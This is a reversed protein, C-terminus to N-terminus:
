TRRRGRLVASTRYSARRRVKRHWRLKRDRSQRFEEPGLASVEDGAAGFARVAPEFGEPWVIGLWGPGSSVDARRIDGSRDVTVAVVDSGCLVTAHCLGHPKGRGDELASWGSGGSMLATGSMKSSSRADLPDSGSGSGSGGCFEWGDAVRKFARVQLTPRGTDADEDIAAVVLAFDGYRDVDVPKVPETRTVVTTPWPGPQDLASRIVAHQADYRATRREREATAEAGEVDYGGHTWL